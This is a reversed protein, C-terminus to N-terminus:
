RYAGAQLEFLQAYAGAAQMLEAHSGLEAIRGDAVVAILDAMRVTSFRHSVLVTVAGTERALLRATAGYQQYIAQEAEPDLAATPEDLLMLLPRERMFARALAIRQWQGGSLGAGGEFGSGLQTELGADLSAVVTEAQGAAVARRVLALDDQRALDGVSVSEHLVFELSAFDQFGASIRARWAIPDLDAMPVGDVLVTGGVPDYMRALLKVLTSKGAGNEGVFAITRGAPLTLSVDRLVLDSKTPAGDATSPYAFDVHDLHIGEKLRDPPMATSESWANAAAFGRLWQYRGFTNLSSAVMRVSASITQGTTVIQPGVLLVLTMSGLGLRGARFEFLTWVVCGAYAAGFLVWAVGTLLAFRRTAVMWPRQRLSLSSAAVAVLPEMLGFCRVELGSRPNSLVEMLLHAVRRHRENGLWLQHRVSEGRGQLVAPVLAIALLLCLLPHVTWLLGVVTATGSVAGLMALMRYAGGLQHADRELMSMRDALEPNEHHAITPVGSAIRMLDHHVYRSVKDDVTDVANGALGNVVSSGVLACALLVLGTTLSGSGAAAAVLLSIGLIAMPATVASVITSLCLLSTLLPAARFATVISLWIVRVTTM